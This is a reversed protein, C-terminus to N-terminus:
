ESVSEVEQIIETEDAALSATEEITLILELNKEFVTDFRIKDIYTLDTEGNISIMVKSVDCTDIISNVVSYIPIEELLNYQPESFASDFNLYCTEDKVSASILKVTDLLTPYLIDSKPGTLLQEVVLQEQSKNTSYHVNRIEKVLNDGAEDTFYLTLAAYKYTNIGGGTNEIFSDATMLGIANGQSDTRPAGEVQIGVYEIDPIQIFTRVTALRLFVESVNDLAVYESNYNIYLQNGQLEWNLVEVEDPKIKQLELSAPAASMKEMLEAVIGETDSAEPTYAQKLVKVEQKDMYYLYYDSEAKDNKSVCGALTGIFFLFLAMLLRRRM